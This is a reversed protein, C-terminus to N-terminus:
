VMVMGGNVVIYQGTIFDADASALFVATGALDEPEERRKLCQAQITAEFAEESGSQNLSAESATFGPAIANVAIDPALEVALMRTISLLARKSLHYPVHRKDYDQVRSDLLNIIHASRKQSALARCLVLPAYAHIQMNSHLAEESMDCVSQQDFVSANNILIDVPGAQAIACPM